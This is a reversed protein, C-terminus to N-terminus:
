TRVQDKKLALPSGSILVGDYSAEILEDIRSAFFMIRAFHLITLTPLINNTVVRAMIYFLDDCYYDIYCFFPENVVIYIQCSCYCKLSQNCYHEPPSAQVLKCFSLIYLGSVQFSYPFFHLQLECVTHYMSIHLHKCSWFQLLIVEPSLVLSSASATWHM